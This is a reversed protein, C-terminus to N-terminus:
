RSVNEENTLRTLCSIHKSILMISSKNLPNLIVFLTLSIELNKKIASSSSLLYM